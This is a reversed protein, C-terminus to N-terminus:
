VSHLNLLKKLKQVRQSVDTGQWEQNTSTRKLSVWIPKDKLNSNMWQLIKKPISIGAEGKELINLDIELSIKANIKKKKLYQVKKVIDKFTTNQSIELFCVDMIELKDLQLLFFLANSYIHIQTKKKIGRSCFALSQVTQELFDSKLQVAGKSQLNKWYLSKWYLSKWYSKKWYSKKWYLNKWYLSKWFFNKWYSNEWYLNEWYLSEWYLNELPPIDWQIFSINAKELNLLTKHVALSIEELLATFTKDKRLFSQYLVTNPMTLLVKFNKSSYKKENAFKIPECCFFPNDPTKVDDYLIPPKYCTLGFSQVWGNKTIAFGSLFECFSDLRSYFGAEGLPILNLGLRSQLSDISQKEPITETVLSLSTSTTLPNQPLGDLLQKKARIQTATKRIKLQNVIKDENLNKQFFLKNFASTKLTSTKLTVPAVTNTVSKFSSYSDIETQIVKAGKNLGKTLLAVEEIKQKAFALKHQIKKMAPSSFDELNKDYPVFLLSSNPAVQIKELGFKRAAKELYKLSHALNNKWINTADVVGLSISSYSELNKSLIFDLQKADAVLDLHITSFPLGDLAAWNQCISGFYSILATHLDSHSLLHKYAKYFIQQQEQTLNLTLCPEHFYVREAGRNKLKELLSEYCRLLKYILSLRNFNGEGLMLFSFPGLISPITEIGCSKAELYELVPKQTSLSFQQRRTFEPVVYQYKTDFFTKTKLPAIIKDRVTTQNIPYGVMEFYTEFDVLKKRNWHFRKPVVGFLAATDLVFDFYSFDNSPIHDIGANKQVIWKKQRIKRVFIELTEQLIKGTVFGQITRTLELNAGINPFGLSSSTAM